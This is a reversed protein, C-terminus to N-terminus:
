SQMSFVEKIILLLITNIGQRTLNYMIFRFLKKVMVLHKLRKLTDNKKYNQGILICITHKLKEKRM